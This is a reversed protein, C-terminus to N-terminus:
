GPRQRVQGNDTGCGPRVRLGPHGPEAGVMDDVVVAVEGRVDANCRWFADVVDERGVRRAIDVGERRQQPWTAVDGRDVFRVCEVQQRQFGLAQGPVPLEHEGPRQEGWGVWGVVNKETVHRPQDVLARDAGSQGGM